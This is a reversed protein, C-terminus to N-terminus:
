RKGYEHLRKREEEGLKMIERATKGRLPSGRSLTSLNKRLSIIADTGNNSSANFIRRSDYAKDAFVKKESETVLNSFQSADHRKESTTSIRSAMIRDTDSSVQLKIWGKRKM